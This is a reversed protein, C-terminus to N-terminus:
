KIPQVPFAFVTNYGCQIMSLISSKTMYLHCGGRIASEEGDGQKEEQSGL